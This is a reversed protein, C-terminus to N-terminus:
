PKPPSRLPIARPNPDMLIDMAVCTAKVKSPSCGSRHGRGTWDEALIAEGPKLNLTRGDGLDFFMEGQLAIILHRYDVAGHWEFMAGQVGRGITIQHPTQMNFYTQLAAGSKHTTEQSPISIEELYSKGDSAAYAHYIKLARLDDWTLLSDAANASASPLFTAPLFAAAAALLGVIKTRFQRAMM